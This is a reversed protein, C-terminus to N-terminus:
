SAGKILEDLRDAMAVAFADANIDEALEHVEVTDELTERLGELLARDADPDHFPQGEVAIMSVGGVPIFLVTPGTAASLKTGIRRGLERCEEPTTRMLTVTPNHVYLNRGEFREPVSERPGFNVMDLAGLSVVQPLGVRGAAELRDPGASLVGGVLEDALETTTLDLVGTLFGGDILVEMSQGGTGTAHFVLVEYGLEELRQRARTVGATTVGFMSAAVLPRDQREPVTARAMGAVAGAANALVRASVSNVGAIDVVSYMMTIDVAGVYPRTDGSALTSVLVKPVGVPLARMGASVISSGGSGGAGLVADFRGDAHLQPLLAAIGRGMAATAEGRDRASALGAVDEGAAAAVEARGIDPEIQPEDIGVDIVLVEVDQELLRDRLFDYEDGKTDLTGVIAIVPQGTENM